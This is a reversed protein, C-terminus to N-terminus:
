TATGMSLALVAGLVLWPGLAHSGNRRTILAYLGAAAFSLFIWWWAMVPGGAATTAAALPAALTVDGYGLGGRSAHHFVRFTVYGLIGGAAGLIATHPSRTTITIGALTISELLGLTAVQRFPLRQVEVDVAALWIGLVLVPGALLATEWNGTQNVRFALLGAGAATCLPITWQHRPLPLHQETPRRYSLTSLNHRLGWGILLGALVAGATVATAITLETTM